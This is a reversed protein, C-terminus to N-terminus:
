RRAAAEVPADDGRADVRVAYSGEVEFVSVYTPGPQGPDRETTTASAWPGSLRLSLLEGAALDWELAGEVTWTEVITDTATGDVVPVRSLDGPQVTRRELEGAISARARGGAVSELALTLAGSTAREDHEVLLHEAAEPPMEWALSEGLELLAGLAAGDAEWREGPARPADPLLASWGLLPAPDAAALAEGDDAFSARAAEGPERELRLTRGEFPSEASSSWPWKEDHGQMSMGMSGENTWALEEVRVLFAAREGTRECTARTVVRRRDLTELHLEPLYQPDVRAGDMTVSLDGGALRLESEIETHRTRGVEPEFVLPVGDQVAPPLVILAPLLVRSAHM